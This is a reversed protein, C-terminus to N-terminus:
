ELIEPSLKKVEESFFEKLESVTLSQIMKPLAVIRKAKSLESGLFIPEIKFGFKVEASEKLQLLPFKKLIFYLDVFDKPDFRELITAIKNVAIDYESDVNLNDFVTAPHVQKFPYHTFEIKVETDNSRYFFQHRDYIKSFHVDTAALVTKIEQALEQIFIGDIAVYSFFDLDDSIRHHLYYAALATGGSLYFSKFEPKAALFQLTKKQWEKLIEQEM